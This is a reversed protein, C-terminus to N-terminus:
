GAPAQFKMSKPLFCIVHRRQRAYVTHIRIGRWGHCQIDMVNFGVAAPTGSKPVKSIKIAM